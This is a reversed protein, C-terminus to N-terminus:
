PEIILIKNTTLEYCEYKGTLWDAYFESFDSFLCNYDECKVRKFADIDGPYLERFAETYSNFTYVSDPDCTFIDEGAEALLIEAEQLDALHEPFLELLQEPKM